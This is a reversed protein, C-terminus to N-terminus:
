LIFTHLVTTFYLAMLMIVTLNLERNNTYRTKRYLRQLAAKCSM